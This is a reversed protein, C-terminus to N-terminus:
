TAYRLAQVLRFPIFIADHLVLRWGADSDRNEFILDSTSLMVLAIGHSARRFFTRTEGM